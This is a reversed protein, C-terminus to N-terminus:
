WESSQQHNERTGLKDSIIGICLIMMDNMNFQPLIGLAKHIHIHAQKGEISM